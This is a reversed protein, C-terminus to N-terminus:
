NSAIKGLSTSKSQRTSIFIDEFMAALSSVAALDPWCVHMRCSLTLGPKWENRARYNLSLCPKFIFLGLGLGISLNELQFFVLEIINEKSHDLPSVVATMPWCYALAITTM